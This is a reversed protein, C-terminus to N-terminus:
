DKLEFKKIEKKIYNKGSTILVTFDAYKGRNGEYFPEHELDYDILQDTSYTEDELRIALYEKGTTKSTRKECSKIVTNKTYYIM